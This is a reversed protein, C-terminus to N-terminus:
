EAQYTTGRFIDVKLLELTTMSDILDKSVSKLAYPSPQDKIVMNVAGYGGMGLFKVIRLSEFSWRHDILTVDAM